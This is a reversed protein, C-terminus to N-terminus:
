KLSELCEAQLSKKWHVGIGGISNRENDALESFVNDEYEREEEDDSESSTFKHLLHVAEHIDRKAQDIFYESDLSITVSGCRLDESAAKIHDQYLAKHSKSLQRMPESPECGLLTISLAIAITRTHKSM